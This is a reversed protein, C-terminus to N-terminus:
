RGRLVYGPSQGYIDTLRLRTAQLREVIVAAIVKFLAYGLAPDNECKTRLCAGDFEITRTLGVAHCDFAVRYPPVLWSWGLLEGEHLTEIIAPGGDPMYAELAVAGERIVHFTNAPEGAQLIEEGDRFPRNRACGAITERHEPRLAEFAPVSTLLEPITQM